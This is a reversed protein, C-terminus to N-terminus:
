SEEKTFPNQYKNAEHWAAVIDWLLLGTLALLALTTLM